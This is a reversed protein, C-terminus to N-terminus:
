NSGDRDEVFWYATVGKDVRQDYREGREMVGRRVLMELHRRATSDSPEWGECEAVSAMYDRVTMEGPGLVSKVGAEAKARDIAASRLEEETVGPVVVVEGVGRETGTGAAVLGAGM